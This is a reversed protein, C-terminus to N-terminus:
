VNWCVRSIYWRAGAHAVDEVRAAAVPVEGDCIGQQAELQANFRPVYVRTTFSTGRSVVVVPGLSILM